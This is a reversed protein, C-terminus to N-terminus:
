SYRHGATHSRTFDRVAKQRRLRATENKYANLVERDKIENVDEDDIDTAKALGAGALAGLAPPAALALPVGYHMGTGIVSKGMDMAGGVLSGLFALKETATKVAELSEPLSLGDEACRALFGVKFAERASLM